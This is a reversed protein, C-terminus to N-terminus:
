HFNIKMLIDPTSNELHDHYVSFNFACQIFFVAPFNLHAAIDQFQETYCTHGFLDSVSKKFLHLCFCLICMIVNFNPSYTYMYGELLELSFYIVLLYRSSHRYKFINELLKTFYRFIISVIKESSM